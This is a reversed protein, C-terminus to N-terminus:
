SQLTKFSLQLSLPFGFLVCLKEIYGFFSDRLISSGAIRGAVEKFCQGVEELVDALGAGRRKATGQQTQTQNAPVTDRWTNLLREQLYFIMRSDGFGIKKDFDWHKERKEMAIRPMNGANKSWVHQRLDDLLKAGADRHNPTSSIMYM